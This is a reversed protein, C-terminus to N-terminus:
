EPTREVASAVAHCPLAPSYGGDSRQRNQGECDMQKLSPMRDLSGSGGSASATGKLITVKLVQVQANNNKKRGGM